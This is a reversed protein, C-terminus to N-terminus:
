SPTSMRRAQRLVRWLNTRHLGQCHASIQTERVFNAEHPLLLMAKPSIVMVAMGTHETAETTDSEAVRHVTAWWAGRDMPNELCPCQLPHGHGEGPSRESGPISGEDGAHCAFLNRVASDGPFGVVIMCVTFACWSFSRSAEESPTPFINTEQIFKEYYRIKRGAGEMRYVETIIVICHNKSVLSTITQVLNTEANWHRPLVESGLLMERERFVHPSM